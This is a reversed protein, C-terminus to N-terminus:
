QRAAFFQDIKDKFRRTQIRMSDMSRVSRSMRTVVRFLDSLFWWSAEIANPQADRPETVIEYGLEKLCQGAINEMKRTQSEDFYARWKNINKQIGSEGDERFSNPDLYRNSSFLMAERFEINLFRCITEMVQKPRTCLDEYKIEFYRDGLQAGQCRARRILNKWTNMTRYPNLKWRRQLSQACDRGDRIVHIFYADPFHESLLEMHLAYRPSKEAWRIKNEKAAFHRM